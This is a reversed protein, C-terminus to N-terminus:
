PRAAQAAKKELDVDDQSYRARRKRRVGQVVYESTWMCITLATMCNIAMIVYNYDGLKDRIVGASSFNM